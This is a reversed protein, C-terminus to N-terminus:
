DNAQGGEIEMANAQEWLNGPVTRMDTLEYHESIYKGLYDAVKTAGNVNTHGGYWFDTNGDLGIEDALEFFNLYGCGNERAYARMADSYKYGENYPVTIFLVQINRERCIAMIDDLEKLAAKTFKRQKVTSPDPVEVPVQRNFWAFGMNKRVKALSDRQSSWARPKFSTEELSNWNEHFACLPMYYSLWREPDDGFCQKLYERRAPSDDLYSTLFIEGTINLDHLVIHQMFSEIVVLKPSQTELSDRLFLKVTNGKQWSTGYNYAGIGYKDYLDMTRVGLIAHSSGYIMVEVSDRPLEHFVKIRRYARDTELPRVLIGLSHIGLGILAVTVLCSAIKKITDKM